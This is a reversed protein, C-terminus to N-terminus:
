VLYLTLINLMLDVDRIDCSMHLDIMDAGDYVCNKIEAVASMQTKERIVGAIAPAAIESLKKM